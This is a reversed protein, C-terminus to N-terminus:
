SRRLLRCPRKSLSPILWSPQIQVPMSPQGRGNLTSSSESVVTNDYLQVTQTSTLNADDYSITTKGGTPLTVLTPRLVADYGTTATRGNFDTSTVMAGTM